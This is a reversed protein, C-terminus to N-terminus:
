KLGTRKRMVACVCVNVVEHNKIKIREYQWFFITYAKYENVFETRAFFITYEFETHTLPFLFLCVRGFYFIFQASNTAIVTFMM